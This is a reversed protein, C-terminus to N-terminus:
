EHQSNRVTEINNNNSKNDPPVSVIELVSGASQLEEFSTTPVSQTMKKIDKGKGWLVGYLGIVILVAGLVSNNGFQVLSFYSLKTLFLSLTFLLPAM